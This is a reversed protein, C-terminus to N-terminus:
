SSSTELRHWCSRPKRCGVARVNNDMGGYGDNIVTTLTAGKSASELALGLAGAGNAAGAGLVLVCWPDRSCRAWRPLSTARLGLLEVNTM